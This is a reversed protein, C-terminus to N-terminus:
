CFAIDWPLYLANLANRPCTDPRVPGLHSSPDPSLADQGPRFAAWPDMVLVLVLYQNSVQVTLADIYKNTGCGFQLGKTKAVGDVLM